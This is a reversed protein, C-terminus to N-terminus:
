WLRLAHTEEKYEEFGPKRAQHRDAMPISVFLFLLTNVIAGFLLYWDGQLTTVSALGIGWWMLIEGLYNPHRSHKWLGTRIFGGSQADRFRHLQWDATGQLVTAAFSLLIFPLSQWRWQAGRVFVVVAPMTCAYVILTPVLHIGFFSVIPYLAGSQEHLMTYRWDQHNLGYFTLAWNATLRLGWIWVVILLLIGIPTLQRDLAFAILIAVPQVSWYPDYVSANQFLLSFLFVFVTAAIDALLLNLWYVFTLSRYVAIGLWIALAYIVLIALFSFFRNDKFRNM